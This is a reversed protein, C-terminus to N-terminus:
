EFKDFRVYGGTGGVDHVFLGTIFYILFFELPILLNFYLVQLLEYTQCVPLENPILCLTCALYM